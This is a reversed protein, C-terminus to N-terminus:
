GKEAITPWVEIFRANTRAAIAGPRPPTRIRPELPAALLVATRARASMKGAM